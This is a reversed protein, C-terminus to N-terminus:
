NQNGQPVHGTDPNSPGITTKNRTKLPIERSNELTEQVESTEPPCPRFSLGMKPEIESTLLSESHPVAPQEGFSVWFLMLDWVWTGVSSGSTGWPARPVVMTCPLSIDLSTYIQQTVGPDVAEAKEETGTLLTGAPISHNLVPLGGVPRRSGRAPTVTTLPMLETWTSRRRGLGTIVAHQPGWHSDSAPLVVCFPYM